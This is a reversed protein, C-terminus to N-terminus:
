ESPPPDGPITVDAPVRPPELGVIKVELSRPIEPPPAISVARPELGLVEYKKRGVNWEFVEVAGLDYFWAHIQLEGKAHRERVLPYSLLHEVQRVTVARAAEDADAFSAVEGAIGAAHTAWTGLTELEAPVHAKKLAGVAGCKSHGCVVINRIGLVGVGYELAAGEQFM